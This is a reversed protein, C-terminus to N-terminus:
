EICNDACGTSIGASKKLTKWHMSGDANLLLKGSIWYHQGTLFGYWEVKMFVTYNETNVKQTVKTVDTILYTARGRVAACCVLLQEATMNALGYVDERLSADKNLDVIEEALSAKKTASSSQGWAYLNCGLILAVLLLVFCNKM